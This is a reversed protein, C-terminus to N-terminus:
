REPWLRRAPTVSSGNMLVVLRLSSHIGGDPRPPPEAFEVVYVWSGDEGVPRLSVSSFRWREPNTVLAELQEAAVQIARRPPLPPSPEAEPWSPTQQLAERTVNFDWREGRIYSSFGAAVDSGATQLTVAFLIATLMPGGVMRHGALQLFLPWQQDANTSGDSGAREHPQQFDCHRTPGQPNRPWFLSRLSCSLDVGSAPLFGQPRV